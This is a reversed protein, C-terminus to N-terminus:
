YAQDRLREYERRLRAEANCADDDGDACDEHAEAIKRSLKGLAEEHKRLARGRAEDAESQSVTAMDVMKGAVKVPATVVSAVTSVCGGLAAILLLALAARITM